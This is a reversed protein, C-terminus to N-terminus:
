ITNMDSDQQFHLHAEQRTDGSGISVAQWTTARHHGKRPLPGTPILTMDALHGATRTIEAAGTGVTVANPDQSREELEGTVPKTTSQLLNIARLQLEETRHLLKRTAVEPDCDHSHKCRERHRPTHAAEDDGQDTPSHRPLSPVCSGKM